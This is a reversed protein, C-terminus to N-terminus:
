NVPGMRSHYAAPSSGPSPQYLTSAMWQASDRLEDLQSLSGTRAGLGGRTTAKPQASAPQNMTQQGSSAPLRKISFFLRSSSCPLYLSYPILLCAVPYTTIINCHAPLLWESLPHLRANVLWWYQGFILTCSAGWDYSWGNAYTLIHHCATRCVWLWCSADLQGM